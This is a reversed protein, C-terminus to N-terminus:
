KVAPTEEGDVPRGRGIAARQGQRIVSLPGQLEVAVKLAAIRAGNSILDPVRHDDDM